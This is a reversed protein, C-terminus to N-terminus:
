APVAPRFRNEFDLIAAKLGLPGSYPLLRSAGAGPRFLLLGGGRAPDPPFHSNYFQDYAGRYATARVEIMYGLSDAVPRLMAALSDGFERAAAAPQAPLSDSWAEVLVLVTPRTIALPLELRIRTALDVIWTGHQHDAQAQLPSALVVLASLAAFTKM